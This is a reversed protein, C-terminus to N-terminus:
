VEQGHSAIIDAAEHSYRPNGTKLFFRVVNEWIMDCGHEGGEQEALQLLKHAMCLQKLLERRWELLGKKDDGSLLGDYAGLLSVIDWTHTAFRGSELQGPFPNGVDFLLLHSKTETSETAGLLGSVAAGYFGIDTVVQCIKQLAVDDKDKESIDYLDLLYQPNKLKARCIAAFVKGLRTREQGKAVLYSVSGDYTSSSLVQSKLWTNPRAKRAHQMTAWDHEPILESSSCPAGCYNLNRIADIPASIFERAMEVMSLQSIDLGLKQAQYSFEKRHEEPTMTVLVTTSGSLVIAKQYLPESRLQGSHLSLSAAGASQGIAIVNNPDGGFGSINKQIWEFARIQDYLGNNPPLLTASDPCHLFGLAGLRYNVSAFIIPKSGKLADTCFALPEYYSRDGPPYILM